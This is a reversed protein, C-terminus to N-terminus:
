EIFIHEPLGFSQHRQFMAEYAMEIHETFLATNFLTTTLKNQGLKQRIHALREPNSALEVALAEYEVQTSTILEPLCVANLLSAAVRGAFADGICTLVPLGAWLADSATTGANYPLTDLFIDAARFRALYEDYPLAKGFVLRAADVGRFIAEQKLNEEAWQNEAYLFLVSADVSRLIRMWSDFTQPSIKYTNNFCCFVFGKEPLGLEQRTFQKESIQRKSDNVQYSPLYVIKEAYFQQRDEPIIIRDAFLYDMYDAGMTGLYGLYSAQIPAARFSFIETRADATFGGLDIAIDIQLKRALVAIEKDSKDSVDIVRDFALSLRSGMADMSMPVLSFAIIEFRSRDHKEFLGVTLYSVPHQRFDASFYGVRIKSFENREPIKGLDIQERCTAKVWIEAAKRQVTLDNTITLAAFPTTAKIEENIKQTVLSIDNAISRWDCIKMKTHLLSGLLFEAEPNLKLAKGYSEVASEYQKLGSLAEGLNIWAEPLEGDLEIAKLCAAEAAAYRKLGHLASGLNSWAESSKADLEIAKLCAAEAAAYRKLGHLASGLNSWAESSKADLGIAKHCAAEAAAYRKLGHLASGLNSWAEPAGADLEIAKRCADEAAEYRKLGHLVSGLNSWAEPSGADLEIAKHCVAEAAEYRKLGHLASGLNSWAESSKADLEIAKRIVVEAAEYDKQLNLIAGLNTYLPALDPQLEIARRCSTEADKYRKQRERLKGLNSHAFAYEPMLALARQLCREAERYAGLYILQLGIGNQTDASNLSYIRTKEFANIAESRKGLGSFAVGQNYWAAPMNPALQIAKKCLGVAVSYEGRSNAAHANNVCQVLLQSYM